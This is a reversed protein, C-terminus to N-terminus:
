KVKIPYRPSCLSNSTLRTTWNPLLMAAIRDQLKISALSCGGKFLGPKALCRAIQDSPCALHTTKRKGKDFFWLTCPLTVTYFLNPGVAVMVDVTRSEIIQQRIDQESSRADSASNAMVFGARGKENLASYFLQIWLYNANDTRPLAFTYRRGSGVSDKLREKDVANVNFPPNALVFDFKGTAEHPDDYYSNVNGGHRIDGELGHVAL